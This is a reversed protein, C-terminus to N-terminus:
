SPPTHTRTIKHTTGMCTSQGALNYMSAPCDLVNWVDRSIQSCKSKSFRWLYCRSKSAISVSRELLYQRINKRKLKGLCVTSGTVSIYKGSSCEPIISFVFTSYIRFQLKLVSERSTFENSFNGYGYVLKNWYKSPLIWHPLSRSRINSFLACWM